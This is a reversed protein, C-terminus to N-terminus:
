HLCLCKHDLGGFPAHGFQAGLGQGHVLGWSGGFYGTKNDRGRVM